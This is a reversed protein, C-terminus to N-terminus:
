KINTWAPYVPLYISLYFLFWVIFERSNPITPNEEEEKNRTSGYYTKVSLLVVVSYCETTSGIHHILSNIFLSHIFLDLM